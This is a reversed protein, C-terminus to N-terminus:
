LWQVPMRLHASRNQPVTTVAERLTRAIGGKIGQVRITVPQTPDKGALLTLTAPIGQADPGDGVEYPVDLLAQGHVLVQVRITDVQDPLAMDTEISVVLQGPPKPKDDCGSLFLLTSAAIATSLRRLPRM